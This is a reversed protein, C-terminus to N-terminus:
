RLVSSDVLNNKLYGALAMRRYYERDEPKFSDGDYTALMRDMVEQRHELKPNDHKFAAALFIKKLAEMPMGEGAQLRLEPKRYAVIMQILYM